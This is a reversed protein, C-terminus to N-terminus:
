VCEDLVIESVDLIYRKCFSLILLGCMPLLVGVPSTSLFSTVLM